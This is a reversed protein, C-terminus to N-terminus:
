SLRAMMKMRFPLISPKTAHYPMFHELQVCTFTPVLERLAQALRPSQEFILTRSAFLISSLVPTMLLPM